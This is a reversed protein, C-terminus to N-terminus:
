DPTLWELVNLTALVNVRIVRAPDTMTNRVGVVAALMYVQDWVRPLGALASPATLDAQVFRVTPRTLLSEREAAMGGRSLDDVVTVDDGERSLREALHYGVFGAGGLVLVRAM